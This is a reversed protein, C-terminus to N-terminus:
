PKVPVFKVAPGAAITTGQDSGAVKVVLVVATILLALVALTAINDPTPKTNM